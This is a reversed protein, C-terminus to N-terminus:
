NNIVRFGVWLWVPITALALFSTAVVIRVATPVDGGFHRGLVIVFVASPMAAQIVLVRKLNISVPLIKALGIFCIPLVLLRVLSAAAITRGSSRFNAQKWVDAIMAGSLLLSIPIAMAGLMEVSKGFWIPRHKWAGTYNLTGAVAIMALMMFSEKPPMKAGFKGALISVGVTWIALDVGANHLLLSSLTAADGPFLQLTLPIPIFGYNFIGAAVIFTNRQSANELPLSRGALRLVTFAVLIGLMPLLYGIVPAVFLSNGTFLTTNGSMTELILCPYLMWITLRVLTQDAEETLWDMGRAFAGAMVVLFVSAVSSLITQWQDM